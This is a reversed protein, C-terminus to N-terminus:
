GRSGGRKNNGKWLETSAATICLLFRPKVAKAKAKRKTLAALPAGVRRRAWLAALLARKPQQNKKKTAFLAIRSRICIPYRIFSDGEGTKNKPCCDPRLACV